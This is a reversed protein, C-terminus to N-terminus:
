LQAKIKAYATANRVANALKPEAAIAAEIRALRETTPPHTALMTGLKSPEGKELGILQRMVDAMGNPDYGAAYMFKQGLLDAHVPFRSFNAEGFAVKTM